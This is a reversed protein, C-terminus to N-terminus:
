RSQYDRYVDRELQRQLALSEIRVTTVRTLINQDYL